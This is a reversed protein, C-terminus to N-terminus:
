FIMQKEAFSPWFFDKLTKIGDSVKVDASLSGMIRSFFSCSSRIDQRIVCNCPSDVAEFIQQSSLM